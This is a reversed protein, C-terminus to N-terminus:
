LKPMIYKIRVSMDVPEHICDYEDKQGGIAQGENNDGFTILSFYHDQPLKTAMIAQLYIPDFELEIQGKKQSAPFKAYSHAGMYEAKYVGVLPHSEFYMDINRIKSWDYQLFGQTSKTLYGSFDYSSTLVSGNLTLVFYDDFEFDQDAFLFEASCIVTGPDLGLNAVQERRARFKAQQTSLNGNQGWDCAQKEKPFHIDIEEVENPLTACAMKIDNVPVEGRIITGGPNQNGTEDDAAFGGDGTNLGNPNDLDGSADNSSDVEEGTKTAFSNQSGCNQMSFMLVLSFAALLSIQPRTM